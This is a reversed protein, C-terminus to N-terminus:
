FRLECVIGYHDSLQKKGKKLVSVFRKIARLKVGNNRVLIYDYTTKTHVGYSQAIDNDTGDYTSKEVGSIEGNEAGFCDLMKCYRETIEAETNMDGCVLQPVGDRRYPALLESYIEDMQKYRIEQYQDAQLHTGMIQFTKGNWQGELLMAGKRALCDWTACEKFQITKITKLKIKSIVWVGGNTKINPSNNVPGYQYPFLKGLGETIIKRAAPLFAEEFVIIDFDSNKLNEVIAHARERKGKRVVMRPLMYINWSLVKLDKDNNDSTVEPGDPAPAAFTEPAISLMLLTFLLFIISINKM